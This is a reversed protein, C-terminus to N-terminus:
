RSPNPSAAAALRFIQTTNGGAKRHAVLMERRTPHWDVFAHGRFDTYRAVEDALSARSRRFARSALNANPAGGRRGHARTGPSSRM